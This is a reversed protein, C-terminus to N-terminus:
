RNCRRSKPFILRSASALASFPLRIFLNSLVSTLSQIRGTDFNVEGLIDDISISKSVDQGIAARGLPTLEFEVWDIHIKDYKSVYGDEIARGIGPFANEADEDYDVQLPRGLASLKRLVLDLQPDLSNTPVM